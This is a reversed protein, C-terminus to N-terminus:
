QWFSERKRLTEEDSCQEILTINWDDMGQHDDALFHKHFQTQPVNRENRQVKRFCSTYNHFRSRFPTKASGVYQLKCTKCTNLYIVYSSNCDLISKIAYFQTEKSDTFESQNEIFACVGCKKGRSKKSNCKGSKGKTQTNPVKARVLLDKLSKGKRFGVIPTDPFVRRHEADPTLLLHIKELISKLRSFAPHYTINFTLPAPKNEKPARNLLEMRDFKRAKLIQDRVLKESYGRKLISLFTYM